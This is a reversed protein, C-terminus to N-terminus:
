NAQGSDKRPRGPKRNEIAELRRELEEVQERLRRLENRDSQTM